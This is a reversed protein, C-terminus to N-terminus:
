HINNEWSDRKFSWAWLWYWIGSFLIFWQFAMHIHICLWCLFDLESLYSHWGDM